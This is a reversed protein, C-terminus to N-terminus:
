CSWLRPLRAPLGFALPRIALIAQTLAGRLTLPDGLFRAILLGPRPLTAGALLRPPASAGGAREDGPSAPGQAADERLRAQLAPQLEAADPGAYLLTAAAGAGAFGIPDDLRALIDGDLRTTEAWLLGGGAHLRWADQLAGTAFREGRAARGFVTTEAALLRATPHLRMTLSRGLRAQDFLITEQPLWELMAGEALDLTVDIRTQPGLSRYVKEAAAASITARARPGLAAQMTLSDGGALGGASNVMAATLWEDPEPDPFLLRLPSDQHLERIVTHQAGKALSLRAGGRARQHTLDLM